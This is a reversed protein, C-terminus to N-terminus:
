GTRSEIWFSIQAESSPKLIAEHMAVWVRYGWEM